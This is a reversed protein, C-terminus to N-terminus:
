DKPYHRIFIDCSIAERPTLPLPSGYEGPEKPSITVVNRKRRERLLRILSGDKSSHFLITRPSIQADVEEQSAFTPHKWAHEILETFHAAPVIQERAAMDWAVDFARYAEGAKLYIPNEYIGIGSMHLPVDGNERHVEVRDGMFPMKLQLYEDRLQDLWGEKMPIADPEMWMFYQIDRTRASLWATCIRFMYNAGEPWGDIRAPAPLLHVFDFAQNLQDEIGDRNPTTVRQDWVFMVQHGKCGGLENWWKVNLLALDQDKESVPFTVIM